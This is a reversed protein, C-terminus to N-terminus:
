ASNDSNTLGHASVVSEPVDGGVLDLYEGWLTISRPGGGSLVNSASAIKGGGEKTTEGALEM